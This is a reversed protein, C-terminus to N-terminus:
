KKTFRIVACGHPGVRVAFSDAFVGLDRQRWLDRAIMPCCFGLQLMTESMVRDQEGSLNFFGVVASGDSLTKKLVWLEDNLRIAVACQGLPDQNVAIMENNCIVNHTFDDVAAMDGSFFLPCAMLCWLSFYSYQENTTLPVASLPAAKDFPSTWQGLIIYDPDNWSGPKNFARIGITKEAIRYVGGKTLTHGLDGGVRWSQGGIKAGWEWVDGMGYQCLNLLIDRDQEALVKGMQEYPAQQAQLNRQEKPLSNFVRGYSCWDYKLLDFGWEAYTKADLAEHQYSGEFRQCTQPGPSTYIGAKLGYSHIHETLANMDPFDRATLIKGDADRVPGIKAKVDLGTSATKRKQDTSEAIFQEDIRMWCDDISVYQYGVDAMGSSVMADAAARIIKDKVFHYHTYWHNWGMPPTLALTDGVSLTWEVADEGFENKASLTIKYDGKKGPTSGTIIGTKADLKLSAPLDEATFAIPRKGTTPIRYIFPKDARAGYVVPGNIRPQQPPKPTLIEFEDVRADYVEAADAAFTVAVLLMGATASLALAQRGIRSEKM